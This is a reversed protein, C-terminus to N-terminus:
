DRPRRTAARGRPRPQPAPEAAAPTGPVDDTEVGGPEATSREITTDGPGDPADAAGLSSATGAPPEERRPRPVRSTSRAARRRATGTDATTATGTDTDAAPGAPAGADADRDPAAVPGPGTGPLVPDAGIPDPATTGAPSSAAADTTGAEVSTADADGEPGIATVGAGAGATAEDRRQALAAVLVSGAVGTVVAYAAVLQASLQEAGIEPLRPVTLLCAVAVLLPGAAGSAAAGVRRYTARAARRATLAGIVLASGLSLVAALWSLHDGLRIGPRDALQWFGLQASTMGRGALVGDVVAAVALAWLWGISAVINAAAPPSRQAWIAVLVGVLLGAGAYAAAMSQPDVTDTPAAVRAPVAVLLVAVLAGFAAALVAPIGGPRTRAHAGTSRRTLRQAGVAGAITSTAAIWTAWGLSTAWLTDSSAGAGPGPPTWSIIGLGYGFGLQAAGAGAAIGVATALTGGWGRVAM